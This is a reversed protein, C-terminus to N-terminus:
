SAGSLPAAAEACPRPPAEPRGAAGAAPGRAGVSMEPHVTCDRSSASTSLSSQPRARWKTRSVAAGTARSRARATRSTARHM